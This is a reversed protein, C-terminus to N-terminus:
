YCMNDLVSQHASERERRKEREENWDVNTIHTPPYQFLYPFNRGLIKMRSRMSLYTNIAKAHLYIKLYTYKVDFLLLLM